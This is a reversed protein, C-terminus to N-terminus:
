VTAIFQVSHSVFDLFVFVTFIVLRCARTDVSRGLFPLLRMQHLVPTWLYELFDQSGSCLWLRVGDCVVYDGPHGPASKYEIRCIDPCLYVAKV